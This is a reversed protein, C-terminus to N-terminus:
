EEYEYRLTEVDKKLQEMEDKSTGDYFGRIKREKDILVFNETHIFDDVGGDGETTVVFYSRRALEYIHKKSGTTLRWKAPDAGHKLGYAALVSVSDKVPTVSHSLFMIDDDAKFTEALESMNATTKPCINPCSTFFFDAVYIMNEFDAYTITDGLQDILKFDAIRHAKATHQMDGDVLKPNIDAPQFVQLRQQKKIIPYVVVMGGVLITIFALLIWRYQTM